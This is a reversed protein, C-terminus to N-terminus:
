LLTKRTKRTKQPELRYREDLMKFVEESDKCKGEQIQQHGLMARKIFKGEIPTVDHKDLSVTIDM